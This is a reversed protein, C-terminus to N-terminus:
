ESTWEKDPLYKMTSSQSKEVAHKETETLLTDTWDFRELLKM